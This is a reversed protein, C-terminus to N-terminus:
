MMIEPNRKAHRFIRWDPLIAWIFLLGMFLISIYMAIIAPLLFGAILRSIGECDTKIEMQKGSSRHIKGREM